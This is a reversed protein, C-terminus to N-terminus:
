EPPLRLVPPRERFDQYSGQLCRLNFKARLRGLETGRQQWSVVVNTNEQSRIFDRAAAKAIKTSRSDSPSPQLLPLAASGVSVLAFASDFVDSNETSNLARGLQPLLPEARSGIISAARFAAGRKQHAPVFHLGVYRTLVKQVRVKTPSDVAQMWDRLVPILREEDVSAMIKVAENPSNTGALLLSSQVNRSRWGANFMLAVAALVIFVLGVIIAHTRM